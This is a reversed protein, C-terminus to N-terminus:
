QRNVINEDRAGKKVVGPTGWGVSEPRETKRVVDGTPNSLAAVFSGLTASGNHDQYIFIRDKYLVPSGASGHYNRLDGLRRHWM